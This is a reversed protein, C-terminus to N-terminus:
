RQPQRDNDPPCPWRRRLQRVQAGTQQHQDAGIHDPGAEAPQQAEGRSAAPQGGLHGAGAVARRERREGLQARPAPDSQLGPLLGQGPDRDDQGGLAPRDGRDPDTVADLEQLDGGLM